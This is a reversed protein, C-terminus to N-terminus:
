THGSSLGTLAGVTVISGTATDLTVLNGSGAALYEIGYWVGAGNFAAGFISRTSAAIVSLTGPTNLFSRVPGTTGVLGVGFFRSNYAANDPTMPAVVRHSPNPDRLFQANSQSKDQAKLNLGTLCLIIILPLLFSTKSFKM